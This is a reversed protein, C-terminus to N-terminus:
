YVSRVKADAPAEVVPAPEVVAPTEVVVPAKKVEKKVPAAVNCSKKPACGTLTLLGAVIITSILAIKM